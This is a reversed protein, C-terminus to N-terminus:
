SNKKVPSDKDMSAITRVFVLKKAAIFNELRMWGLGIFSTKKPSYSPFRQVGRRAYREFDELLHVGNNKLVWLESAFTTIPIILSWFIFSCAKMFLGGRKLGIGSAANLTKRGEKIKEMTRNTFDSGICSKLGVHDYEVLEKVKEKGLFYQRHKTGNQREANSEGYGLM